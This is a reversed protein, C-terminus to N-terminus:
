NKTEVVHAAMEHFITLIIVQLDSQREWRGRGRDLFDQIPWQENPSGLLCWYARETWNSENRATKPIYNALHYSKVGMKPIPAGRPFNQIRLQQQHRCGYCSKFHCAHYTKCTTQSSMINIIIQCIAANAFCVILSIDSTDSRNLHLTILTDLPTEQSGRSQRLINRADVYPM